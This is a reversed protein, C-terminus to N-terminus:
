WGRWQATSAFGSDPHGVVAVEVPKRARQDSDFEVYVHLQAFVDLPDGALFDVAPESDTALPEDFIKM